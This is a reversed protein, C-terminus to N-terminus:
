SDEAALLGSGTPMGTESRSSRSKGFLRVIEFFALWAPERAPIEWCSQMLKSLRKLLDGSLLTRPHRHFHTCPHHFPLYSRSSLATIHQMTIHRGNSAMGDLNDLRPRGFLRVLEFLFWDDRIHVGRTMCYRIQSATLHSIRAYIRVRILYSAKDM